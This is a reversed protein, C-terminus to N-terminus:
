PSPRSSGRVEKRRQSGGATAHAVSARAHHFSKPNSAFVSGSVDQLESTPRLQQRLRRFLESRPALEFVPSFVFDISGAQLAAHVKALSVADIDKGERGGKVTCQYWCYRQGMPGGKDDDKLKLVTHKPADEPNIVYVKPASFVLLVVLALVCVIMLYRSSSRPYAVLHQSVVSRSPMVHTSRFKVGEATKKGVIGVPVGYVSDMKKKRKKSIKIGKGIFSRHCTPTVCREVDHVSCTVNWGRGREHTLAVGVVSLVVYISGTGNKGGKVTLAVSLTPFVAIGMSGHGTGNRKQGKGNKRCSVRRPDISVVVAQKGYM